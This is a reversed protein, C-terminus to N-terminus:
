VTVDEAQVTAYLDTFYISCLAETRLLQQLETDRPMALARDHAANMKENFDEQTMMTGFVNIM